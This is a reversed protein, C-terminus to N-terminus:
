TLIQDRGVMTTFDEYTFRISFILPSPEVIPQVGQIEMSVLGPYVKKVLQVPIQVTHKPPERWNAYQPWMEAPTKWGYPNSDVPVHRRFSSSLGKCPAKVM